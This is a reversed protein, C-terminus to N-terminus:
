IMLVYNTVNIDALQMGVKAAKIRSFCQTLSAIPM